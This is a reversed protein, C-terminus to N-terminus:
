IQHGGGDAIQPIKRGTGHLRQLVGVEDGGLIGTHRHLQQVMEIDLLRQDAVVLM